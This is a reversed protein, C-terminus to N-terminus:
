RAIRVPLPESGETKLVARGLPQDNPITVTWSIAGPAGDTVGADAVGLPTQTMTPGGYLLVLEVDSLPTESDLADDGSCGFVSQDGQDDCGEVFGQGTVVIREGRHLVPRAVEVEDISLVPAACSASAPAQPYPALSLVLMVTLAVLNRRMGMPRLM